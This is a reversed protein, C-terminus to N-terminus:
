RGCRSGERRLLPRGLKRGIEKGSVDGAKSLKRISISLCNFNPSIKAHESGVAKAASKHIVHRRQFFYVLLEHAEVM